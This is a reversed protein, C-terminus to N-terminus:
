VPVAALRSRVASRPGPRPGRVGRPVHCAASALAAYARLAVDPAAFKRHSCCTATGPARCIAARAAPQRVPPGAFQPARLLNGYRAVARLPLRSRCNGLRRPQKGGSGGSGVSWVWWVLGVLGALARV